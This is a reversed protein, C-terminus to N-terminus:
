EVLGLYADSHYYKSKVFWQLWAITIEYIKGTSEKPVPNEGTIKELLLFTIWDIGHQAITYFLFPIIREGMLALKEFNQHRLIHIHTSYGGTDKKLERLLGYIENMAVVSKKFNEPNVEVKSM